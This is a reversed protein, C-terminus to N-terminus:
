RQARLLEKALQLEGLHRHIHGICPRMLLNWVRQNYLGSFQTRFVKTQYEPYPDLHAAADPTQDLDSEDLRRLWALIEQQVAEAYNLVDSLRVTAAIEDAETFTIGTGMGYPRLNQWHMWNSGHAVEATGRIWSQVITDQTRPIHWVIFGLRNQGPTMRAVWEEPTFDGVIDHLLAHVNALQNEIFVITNV